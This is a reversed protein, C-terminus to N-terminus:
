LRDIIITAEINLQLALESHYVELKFDSETTVKLFTTFDFDSTSFGTVSCTRVYEDSPLKKRKIHVNCNIRGKNPDICKGVVHFKYLGPQLRIYVFSGQTSVVPNRIPSLVLSHAALKRIATGNGNFIDCTPVRESEYQLYQQPVAALLEPTPRPVDDYDWRGVSTEGNACALNYKTM